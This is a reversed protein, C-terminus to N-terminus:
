LLQARGGLSRPDAGRRHIPKWDMDDVALGNRHRDRKQAAHRGLARGEILRLGRHFRTPFDRTRAQQVRKAVDLHSAAHAPRLRHDPRHQIELRERRTASLSILDTSRTSGSRARAMGRMTSNKRPSNGTSVCGHHVRLRRRASCIAEWSRWSIGSM